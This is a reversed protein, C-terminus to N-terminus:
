IDPFHLAHAHGRRRAPPGVSSGQLHGACCLVTREDEGAGGGARRDSSDDRGSEQGQRLGVCRAGSAEDAAPRSVNYACLDNVAVGRGFLMELKYFAVAMALLLVLLAQKLM